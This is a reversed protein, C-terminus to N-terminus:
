WYIIYRDSVSFQKEQKLVEISHACIIGNVKFYKCICFVVKEERNYLVEFTQGSYDDVLYVCFDDRELLFM